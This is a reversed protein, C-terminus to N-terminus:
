TLHACPPGHPTTGMVREFPQAVRPNAYRLRAPMEKHGARGPSAMVFGLATASAVGRRAMRLEEIARRVSEIARQVHVLEGSASTAVDPVETRLSQLVMLVDCSAELATDVNDSSRSASPMFRVTAV